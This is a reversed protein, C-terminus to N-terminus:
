RAGATGGAAPPAVDKVCRFGITAGRDLAPGFLLLRTHTDLPQPGGRVYWLSGKAEFWAGGRLIASRTWGDFRESETWQWVNGTMDYCGFPSRGTPYAHVPTTGTGTTNCRAPDFADGWPWRRGDAGQAALQWEAETPLRKGVWRAYARADELNVYVVPHDRLHGPPRGGPWHRLFASPDRPRHGSAQLFAAYEANTVLREDMLFPNVVVTYDHAIEENFPTGYTWYDAREPPAGPDPYCGCERREHRLLMRVPGGPVAVMGPPPSALDGRPSAAVPLPDDGLRRDPGALEPLGRLSALLAEVRRRGAATRPLAIAGLRALRVRAEGGAVRVPLGRWLDTAREVDPLGDLRLVREEAALADARRDVLLWLTADPGDWRSAYVQPAGTPVFPTWRESALEARFARLVRVARRWVERDAVPWPNFSGFVNEWILMGSGNFWADEIEALHGRDWRRIQHQMHRPEIWRHRLVAPEPFSAFWQAWSANCVALQETTPTLEPEFVVGRRHRDMTERLGQPAELMTDLFVGDAGIAKALRGLAEADSNGERRTGTDWPNYCLFARVGRRHLAGVLHRLAPLGGPADRYHDFQNRPDVGIRPYAQWLVVSDIGGFERDMEALFEDVRWRGRVADYIRADSLMLFYCAFNSASWRLDARDYISRDLPRGSRARAEGIATRRAATGPVDVRLSRLEWTGRASDRTGDQGVIVNPVTGAPPEPVLAELVVPGGQGAPMMAMAMVGSWGRWELSERDLYDFALCIEPNGEVSLAEARVAVREGPRLALKGGLEPRVRLWARVGDFAGRVGEPPTGARVLRRYEHMALLWADHSQGPAPGRLHNPEIRLGAPLGGPEMWRVGAGDPAFAAPAFADLTVTEALSRPAALALALLSLPMSLPVPRM